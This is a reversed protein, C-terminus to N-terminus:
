PTITSWHRAGRPWATWAEPRLNWPSHPDTAADVSWVGLSGLKLERVAGIAYLAEREIDRPPGAPLALGIGLLRGDAQKHGVFALPLFALHPVVSPSGDAEHGSLLRRAAESLGNSHSLLAARWRKVVALTATLP